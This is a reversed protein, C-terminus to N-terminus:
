SRAYIWPFRQRDTTEFAGIETERTKTQQIADACSLGSFEGSNVVVGDTSNFPLQPEAM